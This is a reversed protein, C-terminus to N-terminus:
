LREEEKEPKLPTFTACDTATTWRTPRWVTRVCPGMGQIYYTMPWVTPKPWECHGRVSTLVRGTAPNRAPRFHICSGCTKM